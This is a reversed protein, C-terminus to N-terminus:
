PGIRAAYFDSYIFILIGSGRGPVLILRQPSARCPERRALGPQARSIGDWHRFLIMRRFRESAAMQSDGSVAAPLTARVDSVAVQAGPLDPVCEANGLNRAARHARIAGQQAAARQQLGPMRDPGRLAGFHSGNRRRRRHQHDRQALGQIGESDM